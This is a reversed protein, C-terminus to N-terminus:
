ILHIILRTVKSSFYDTRMQYLIIIDVDDLELDPGKNYIIVKFKRRDIKSVWEVEEKFRSIVIVNPM